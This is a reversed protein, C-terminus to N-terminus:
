ATPLNWGFGYALMRLGFTVAAGGAYVWRRDLETRWGLVMVASGLLAATAYVDATLVSPVMTLLLDRMMGGGVATITGMAVCALPMLRRDLAKATGTLAFLALGAADITVLATSGEVSTAGGLLFAGLGAIPAVCLYRPDRLAAPPVDGILLDRLVGGGLSAVCAIVLVGFLDLEAGIALAAGEFAFLATAALDLWTVVRSGALPRLPPDRRWRLLPGSATATRASEPPRRDASNM